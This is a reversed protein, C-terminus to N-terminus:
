TILMTPKPVNKLGKREMENLKKEKKNQKHAVFNIIFSFGIFAKWVAATTTVNEGGNFKREHM